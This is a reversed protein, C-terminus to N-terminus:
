AKKAPTKKAPAKKKAVPKKDATAKASVSPATKTAGKNQGIRKALGSKKRGATNKPLLNNKTAMDIAKQVKPFLATAEKMKGAEILENMEKILAKYRDKTVTNRKQKRAQLRVRKIASKIIPM